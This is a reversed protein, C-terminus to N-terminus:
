KRLNSVKVVIPRSICAFKFSERFLEYWGDNTNEIPFNVYWINKQRIRIGGVTSDQRTGPHHLILNVLEGAM